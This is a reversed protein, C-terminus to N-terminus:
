DKCFSLSLKRSVRHQLIHTEESVNRKEKESKKKRISFFFLTVYMPLFFQGILIGWINGM